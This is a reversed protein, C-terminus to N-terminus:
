TKRRRRRARRPAPEPIPSPLLPLRSYTEALLRLGTALVRSLLAGLGARATIERAFLGSEAAMRRGLATRKEPFALGLLEFYAITHQYLVQAVLNLVVPAWRWVLEDKVRGDLRIPNRGIQRYHIGNTAAIAFDVARDWLEDRRIQPTYLPKIEALDGVNWAHPVVDLPNYIRKLRAGLRADLYGAYDDNGPTPGAYAYVSIAARAHPEWQAQTDLLWLALAPSLAGGLSHGGVTIEVPAGAAAFRDQLFRELTLNGGPVDPPPVMGQLAQLGKSTGLSLAAGAPAEGYDWRRTEGVLLDEVFWAYASFPNTGAISIFLEDTEEHAAVFMTNAAFALPQFVGPGWVLRWPGIAAELQELGQEVLRLAKESVANGTLPIGFYPLFALILNRQEPDLTKREVGRLFRPDFEVASTM